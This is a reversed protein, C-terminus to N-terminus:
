NLPHSMQSEQIKFGNNLDKPIRRVSDVWSDCGCWARCVKLVCLRRKVHPWHIYVCSGCAWGEFQKLCETGCLKKWGKSRYSMVLSWRRKTFLLWDSSLQSLPPPALNAQKLCLVFISLVLACIHLQPSNLSWVSNHLLLFIRGNGTKSEFRVVAPLPVEVEAAIVLSCVCVLDGHLLLM